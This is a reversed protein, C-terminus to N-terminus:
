REERSREKVTVPSAVCPASAADIFHYAALLNAEFSRHSFRLTADARAKMGLATRLAHSDALQSIADLTEGESAAILGNEGHSTYDSVGSPSWAIAALGSAMAEALLFQVAHDTGLVVFMWASALAEARARADPSSHMTVGAAMLLAQAQASTPGWWHFDAPDTEPWYLVALQSFRDAAMDDLVDSGSVVSSRETESRLTRFFVEDVPREILKTQGTTLDTVRRGEEFSAVLQVVVAGKLLLGLARLLVRGLPKFVRFLRSGHPSLYIHSPLAGRRHAWAGLAGPVFGHLHCADVPMRTEEVLAQLQQRWFKFPNRSDALKVVRISPDLRELLYRLAPDDRLIVTQTVGRASLTRTLPGLLGFVDEKM